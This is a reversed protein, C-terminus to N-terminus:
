YYSGTVTLTPRTGPPEAVEVALGYEAPRRTRREWRGPHPSTWRTEDGFARRALVAWERASTRSSSLVCSVAYVDIDGRQVTGEEIRLRLFGDDSVLDVASAWEELPASDGVPRRYELARAARISRELSQMRGAYPLCVQVLTRAALADQAVAQEAVSSLGAVLCCVVFPKM